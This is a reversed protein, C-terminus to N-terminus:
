SHAHMQQLHKKAAEETKHSSIIHGDKHDKICWESIEGSSNKHGPCHSVFSYKLVQSNLYAIKRRLLNDYIATYNYQSDEKKKKFEDTNKMSELGQELNTQITPSQNSSIPNNQPEDVQEIKALRKYFDLENYM